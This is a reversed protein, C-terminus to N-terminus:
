LETKQKDDIGLKRAIKRIIYAKFLATPKILFDAIDWQLSELDMVRYLLFYLIKIKPSKNLDM